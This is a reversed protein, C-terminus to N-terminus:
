LMYPPLNSPKLRQEKQHKRVATEMQEAFAKVEPQVSAKGAHVEGWFGELTKWAADIAAAYMDRPADLSYYAEALGHIADLVARLGPAHTALAALPLEEYVNVDAQMLLKDMIYFGDQPSATGLPPDIFKDWAMGLM